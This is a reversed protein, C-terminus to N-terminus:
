FHIGMNDMEKLWDEHQNESLRATCTALSSINDEEQEEEEDGTDVEEISTTRARPRYGAWYPKVPGSKKPGKRTKSKDFSKKKPQTFNKTQPKKERPCNHAM